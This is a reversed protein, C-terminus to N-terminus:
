SPGEILWGESGLSLVLRHRIGAVTVVATARNDHFEPLTVRAHELATPTIRAAPPTRLIADCAPRGRAELMSRRGSPVLADLAREPHNAACADLFARVTGRAEDQPSASHNACGGAVLSVALALTGVTPRMAM